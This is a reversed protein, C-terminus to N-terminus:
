IKFEGKRVSNVNTIRIHYDIIINWNRTNRHDNYTLNDDKQM